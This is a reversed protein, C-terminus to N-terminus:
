LGDKRHARCGRIGCSEGGRPVGRPSDLFLVAGTILLMILIIREVTEGSM